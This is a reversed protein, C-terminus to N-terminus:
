RGSKAPRAKTLPPKMSEFSRQTEFVLEKYAKASLKPASGFRKMIAIQDKIFSEAIAKSSRAPM